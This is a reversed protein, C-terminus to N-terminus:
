TEREEEAWERGAQEVRERQEASVGSERAAELQSEILTNLQPGWVDPPNEQIYTVWREVEARRQERNREHKEALPDSSDTM